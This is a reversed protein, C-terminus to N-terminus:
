DSIKIDCPRISLVENTRFLGSYGLLFIFLFCLTLLSTSPKNYHEVRELLMLESIQGKPQVPRVLRSAGEAASAVIPHDVPSALSVLKHAGRISYVAARGHGNQFATNTLEFVYLAVHGVEAPLHPVDVRSKTWSCWRNWGRGVWPHSELSWLRLHHRHCHHIQCYHM